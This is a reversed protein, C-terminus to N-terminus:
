IRGRAHLWGVWAMVLALSALGAYLGICEPFGPLPVFTGYLALGPVVAAMPFLFWRWVPQTAPQRAMIRLAGLALATYVLVLLVAQATAAVFLTDYRHAPPIMM